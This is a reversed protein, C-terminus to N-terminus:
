TKPVAPGITAALLAPSGRQARDVNRTRWEAALGCTVLENPLVLPHRAPQCRAHKNGWDTAPRDACPRSHNSMCDSVVLAIGAGADRGAPHITSTAIGTMPHSM